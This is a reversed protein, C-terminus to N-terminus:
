VVSYISSPSTMFVGFKNSQADSSKKWFERMYYEKRQLDGKSDANMAKIYDVIALSFMRNMNVHSDEDPSTSDDTLDPNASGGTLENPDEVVFPEIYATGEFMLGADITETPYVLQTGVSEDPLRIKYDGLTEVKGGKTIEWLEINRGVVQYVWTLNTNRSM